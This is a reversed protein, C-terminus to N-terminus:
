KLINYNQTLESANLLRNYYLINKIDSSADGVKIMQTNNSNLLYSTPITGEQYLADNVFIRFKNLTNDRMIVIHYYLSTNTLTSSTGNVNSFVAGGTGWTNINVKQGTSDLFFRVTNSSDQGVAFQSLINLFAKPKVTAAVTWESSSPYYTDNNSFSTQSTLNDWKQVLGSTVWTSPQITYTVTQVSSSNGATDKGFFKLTTTASVTIASSYVTSAETPTSGDTTYYITATENASLTVNQTSTFTGGNPSATVIPATTDAPASTTVTVSTGSAINNSGDKAKVYFTYQTSATLGSVNYTVGTVNGLLTGGNFVDYSAVDSSVSATWNLTLSTQTVNSTTLNTVNDPATTDPTVTTFSVNVGNSINGAGDKAKVTLTYGTSQTLGTVTYSTSTTSTILSAGNYIEYSAVDPSTSATWNLTVSTTSLNSTTLNTVENPATTDAVSSTTVNVTTGSAINNSGDKAKVNFTYNTNSTLGSVNYTNGTVTTLLTTGNYIEYGTVDTSNSATWTLTLSTATVNSTVLNTVNNPATADATTVNVSTGTAINNTADKAKVTFTYSTKELLGTVNYTTGIITTLLTAGNYIDYGSVDSSSSATWSLTLSTTTINSTTLNTVNNPATTDSPPTPTITGSLTSSVTARYPVSTTITLSTFPEFNASYTESAKVPITLDNITFTLGTTTHDNSIDFGVMSDTYTKTINSSGEFYDKVVLLNEEGGSTSLEVGDIMLKGNASISLRDLIEKGLITSIDNKVTTDDYVTLENGNVLVNGNTLSDSINTTILEIGDITLKDNENVGLRDLQSKNAHIHQDAKLSTDDYVQLEYGNVIINGNITSDTITTVTGGGNFPPPSNYGIKKKVSFRQINSSFTDGNEYEIHAQFSYVGVFSIDSADLTIECEGALANTITAIKTVGWAKFKIVVEVNAGTLDVVNGEDTIKLRFVTGDNGQIIENKNPM